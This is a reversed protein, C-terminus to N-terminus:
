DRGPMSYHLRWVCEPEGKVLCAEKSVRVDTAGEVRLTEALYGGLIGCMTESPFAYDRVIMRRVGPAERQVEFHGSDHQSSWLAVARVAISARDAGSLHSYVGELHDRASQAGLRALVESRPGPVMQVLAQLLGLLDEEPYWRSEVVREELYHHLSEPLRERAQQKNKRLFRVASILTTGKAKAM